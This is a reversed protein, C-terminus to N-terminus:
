GALVKWVGKTFEKKKMFPVNWLMKKLPNMKGKKGLRNNALLRVRTEFTNPYISKYGGEPESLVIKAATSRKPVTPSTTTVGYQRILKERVRGTRPYLENLEGYFRDRSEVADEQLKDGMESGQADVLKRLADLKSKIEVILVNNSLEKKLYGKQIGGLFPDWIMPDSNDIQRTFCSTAEEAASEISNKDKKAGEIISEHLIMRAVIPNERGTEYFIKMNNSHETNDKKGYSNFANQAATRLVDRYTQQSGIPQVM